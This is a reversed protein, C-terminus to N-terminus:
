KQFSDMNLGALESKKSRGEGVEGFETQSREQTFAIVATLFYGLLTKMEM